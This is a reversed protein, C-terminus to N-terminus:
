MTTARRATSACRFSPSKGPYHGGAPAADILVAGYYPTGPIIPAGSDADKWWIRLPFTANAATHGPGVAGLTHFANPDEGLVYSINPLASSLEISYSASSDGQPVDVLAWVNTAGSDRLDIVCRLTTGGSARFEPVTQEAFEPVGDGNSDIGAYLTTRRRM